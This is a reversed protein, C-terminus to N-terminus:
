RGNLEDFLAVIKTAFKDFTMAKVVTQGDATETSAAIADPDKPPVLLGNKGDDISTPVGGVASAITPLGQSRAEVVVYPAGESLTPLVFVDSRRM